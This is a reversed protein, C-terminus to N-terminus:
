AAAEEQCLDEQGMIVPAFACPRKKCLMSRIKGLQMCFEERKESTFIAQLEALETQTLAFGLLQAARVPDDFLLECFTKCGAAAGLLTLLNM